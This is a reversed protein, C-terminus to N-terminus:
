ALFDNRLQLPGLRAGLDHLVVLSHHVFKFLDLGLIRLNGASVEVPWRRLRILLLCPALGCFCHRTHRSSHGLDLIVKDKVVLYRLSGRRLVGFVCHFVGCSLDNNVEALRGRNLGELRVVALWDLRDWWLCGWLGFCGFRLLRRLKVMLVNCLHHLLMYFQHM